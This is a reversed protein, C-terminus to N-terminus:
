IVIPSTVDLYHMLARRSTGQAPPSAMPGWSLFSSGGVSPREVCHRVLHGVYCSSAGCEEGVKGEEEKGGARGELAAMSWRVVM